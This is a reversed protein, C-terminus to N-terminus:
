VLHRDMGYTVDTHKKDKNHDHILLLLLNLVVIVDHLACLYDDAEPTGIGEVNGDEGGKKLKSMSQMM